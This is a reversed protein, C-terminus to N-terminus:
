REQDKSSIRRFNRRIKKPTVKLKERVSEKQKDISMPYERNMANIFANLVEPHCKIVYANRNNNGDKDKDAFVPVSNAWKKHDDEIRKDDTKALVTNVLVYRVRPAGFESVVQKVAEPDLTDFMYHRFMAKEIAEKCQINLHTSAQYLDWEGVGEAYVESEAYISVNANAQHQEIIEDAHNEVTEMMLDILTLGQDDYARFIADLPKDLSLLARAREETLELSEMGALIDTKVAYEYSHNIISDSPQTKLWEYFMRLEESMRAFLDFNLDEKSM